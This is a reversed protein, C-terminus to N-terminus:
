LSPIVGSGLNITAENSHKRADLDAADVLYTNSNTLTNKILLRSQNVVFQL